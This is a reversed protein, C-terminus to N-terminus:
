SGNMSLPRTLVLGCSVQTPLPYSLRIIFKLLDVICLNQQSPPSVLPKGEDANCWDIHARVTGSAWVLGLIPAHIHLSHLHRVAAATAMRNQRYADELLQHVPKKDEWFSSAFEFGPADPLSACPTSQFRFSSGKTTNGTKIVTAHGKLTKFPSRAAHSLTRVGAAPIFIACDPAVTKTNLIRNAQTGLNSM